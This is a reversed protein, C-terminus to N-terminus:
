YPQMTAIKQLNPQHGQRGIEELASKYSYPLVNSILAECMGVVQLNCVCVFNIEGHKEVFFSYYIHYWAKMSFFFYFKHLNNYIKNSTLYNSLLEVCLLRHCKIKKLFTTTNKEVFSYIESIRFNDNPGWHVIIFSQWKSFCPAM